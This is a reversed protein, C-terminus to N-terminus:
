KNAGGSSSCKCNCGQMPCDGANTSVWKRLCSTHCGHGCLACVSFLGRVPLRCLSCPFLPVVRCSPCFRAAAGVVNRSCVTCSPEFSLGGKVPSFATPLRLSSKLMRAREKFLGFSLCQEAYISQFALYRSVRLPDILSKEPELMVIPGSASSGFTGATSSSSSGSVVLGVNSVAIGM